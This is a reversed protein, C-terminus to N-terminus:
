YGLDEDILIIKIRNRPYSKETITWTNCIRQPSKCDHCTGTIQCPLKLNKHSQANLPAAISKIRQFGENLDKVIKNRGIFLVVYRPGFSLAAVRNGIMDLNILQGSETLANTGTLFLDVTLAEKRKNIQERWSDDCAFTDIFKFESNECLKDLVGTAKMTKSDAYSISKFDISKLIEDEFVRKAQDLDEALFVEFNNQKLKDAVKSIVSENM